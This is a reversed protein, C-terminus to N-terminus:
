NLQNPDIAAGEGGLRHLLGSGSTLIESSHYCIFFKDYTKHKSSGRLLTPDRTACPQMLFCEGRIDKSLVM